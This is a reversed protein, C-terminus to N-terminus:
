EAVAMTHGSLREILVGVTMDHDHGFGDRAGPSLARPDVRDAHAAIALVVAGEWAGALRGAHPHAVGGSAPAHFTWRGRGDPQLRWGSRHVFRHHHGCLTVLNDLDTPGDDTWSVVHHAHLFRVAGCGPFRCSRDRALLM